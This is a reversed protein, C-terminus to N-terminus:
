ALVSADIWRHRRAQWGLGEIKGCWPPRAPTAIPLALALWGAANKDGGTAVLTFAVAGSAFSAAVQRSMVRSPMDAATSHVASSIM